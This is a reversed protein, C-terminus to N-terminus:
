GIGPPVESRILKAYEYLRDYSMGRAVGQPIVCFSTHSNCLFYMQRTIQKFNAGTVAEWDALYSVSYFIVLKPRHRYILQRIKDVRVSKYKQLYQTRTVLGLSVFNSYLWTAELTKNSPLPMLEVACTTGGGFDRGQFVSIEHKTPEKGDRLYLYLAIPYKITAQLRYPLPARRPTFWKMHDKVAAMDRRIDVTVNSYTAAFRAELYQEGGNSLGEEMGVFWVPADLSGYGWFKDLRWRIHNEPIMAPGAISLDLLLKGKDRTTEISCGIGTVRRM